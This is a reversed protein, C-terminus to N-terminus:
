QKKLYIDIGNRSLHLHKGYLEVITFDYLIGYDEGSGYVFLRNYPNSIRQYFFLNYFTTDQPPTNHYDFKISKVGDFYFTNYGLGLTVRNFLENGNKDFFEFSGHNQAADNWYTFNIGYDTLTKPKLLSDFDHSHEIGYVQYSTIMWTGNIRKWPQKFSIFPDEPYKHCSVFDILTILILLIKFLRKM